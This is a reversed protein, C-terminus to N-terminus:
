RRWNVDPFPENPSLSCLYKGVPVVLINGHKYQVDGIDSAVSIRWMWRCFM